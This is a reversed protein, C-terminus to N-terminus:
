NVVIEYAAVAKRRGQIQSLQEALKQKEGQVLGALITDLDMVKQAFAQFAQESPFCEHRRDCVQRLLAERQKELEILGDYDGSRASEIMRNTMPIINECIQALEKM